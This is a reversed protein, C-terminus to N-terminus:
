PVLPARTDTMSPLTEHVVGAVHADQLCAFLGRGIGAKFRFEM